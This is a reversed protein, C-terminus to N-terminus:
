SERIGELWGEFDKRTMQKIELWNFKGLPYNKVILKLIKMYLIRELITFGEVAFTRELEDLQKFDFRTGRKNNEM